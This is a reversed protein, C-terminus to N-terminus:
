QCLGEIDLTQRDTQTMHTHRHTYTNTPVHTHARVHKNRLRYIVMHRHTITYTHTHTHTRARTEKEIQIDDHGQRPTETHLNAYTYLIFYLLTSRFFIANIWIRGFKITEVYLFVSALFTAGM